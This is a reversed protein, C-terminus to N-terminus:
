VSWSIMINGKGVSVEDWVVERSIMEVVDDSLSDLKWLSSREIEENISSVEQLTVSEHTLDVLLSLVSITEEVDSISILSGESSLLSYDLLFTLIQM